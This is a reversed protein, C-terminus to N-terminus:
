CLFLAMCVYLYMHSYVFLTASSTQSNLTLCIFIAHKQYFFFILVAIIRKFICAYMCTYRLILFAWFCVFFFNFYFWCKCLFTTCLFFIKATPCYALWEVPPFLLNDVRASNITFPEVPQSQGEFVLFWCQGFLSINFGLEALSLVSQCTVGSFLLLLLFVCVRMCMSISIHAFITALKPLPEFLNHWCSIAQIYNYIYTCIYM